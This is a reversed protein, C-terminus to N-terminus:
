AGVDWGCDLWVADWHPYFGISPVLGARLPNALIYRAVSLLDEDFRIARDHFDASWVPCDSGRRLNILRASRTKVCRVVSSLDMGRKLAFLWHLHDPMLVFCLSSVHGLGDQQRMSTVVDRANAIDLFVPQREWAVTTVHYIRGAESYRGKRLQRAGKAPNNM